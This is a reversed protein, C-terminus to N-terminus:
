DLISIMASAIWGLWRNLNSWHSGVVEVNINLPVGNWKSKVRCVLLPYDTSKRPIKDHWYLWLSSYRDLCEMSWVISEFHHFSVSWSIRNTERRCQDSSIEHLEPVFTQSEIRTCGFLSASKSCGRRTRGSFFFSLLFWLDFIQVSVVLSSPGWIKWVTSTLILLISFLMVIDRRWWWDDYKWQDKERGILETVILSMKWWTEWSLKRSFRFIKIFNSRFSNKSISCGVLNTSLSYKSMMTAHNISRTQRKRLHAHTFEDRRLIISTNVFWKLESERGHVGNRLEPERNRSNPLNKM